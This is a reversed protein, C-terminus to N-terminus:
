RTESSRDVQYKEVADWNLEIGLGPKEHLPMPTLAVCKVSGMRGHYKGM